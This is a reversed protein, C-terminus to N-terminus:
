AGLSATRVLREPCHHRHLNHNSGLPSPPAANQSLISTPQSMKSHAYAVGIGASFYNGASVTATPNYQPTTIQTNPRRFAELTHYM